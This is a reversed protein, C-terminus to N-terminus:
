TRASRGRNRTTTEYNQMCFCRDKLKVGGDEVVVRHCVATTKIQIITRDLQEEAMFAVSVFILTLPGQLNPSSYYRIDADITYRVM